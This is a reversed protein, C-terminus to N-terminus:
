AAGARGDTGSLPKVPELRVQGARAAIWHAVRNALRAESLERGLTLEAAKRVPLDSYASFVRKATEAKVEFAGTQKPPQRCITM